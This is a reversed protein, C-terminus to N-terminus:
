NPWIDLLASIHEAAERSEESIGKELVLLVSDLFNDIRMNARYPIVEAGDESFENLISSFTRLTSPTAESIYSQFALGDRFGPQKGDKFKVSIDVFARLSEILGGGPYIARAVEVPHPGSGVITVFRDRVKKPTRMFAVSFNAISEAQAWSLDGDSSFRTEAIGPDDIDTGDEDDADFDDVDAADTDTIENVADTAPGDTNQQENEAPTDAVGNAQEEHPTNDQWGQDNNHNDEWGDM